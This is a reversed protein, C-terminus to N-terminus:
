SRNRALLSATPLSVSVISPCTRTPVPVVRGDTRLVRADMPPSVIVGGETVARIREKVREVEDPHVISSVACGLM